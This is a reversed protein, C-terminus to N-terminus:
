ILKQDLAHHIAASRSNVGLKSYITTLHTTVTRRSVVLKEAIQVDSLGQVLLRLVDLERSTLENPSHAKAQPVIPLQELEAIIQQLTLARGESWTSTFDNPNMRDRLIIMEPQYEEQESPIMKTHSEERIAEAAGLWRAAQRDRKEAIAIFALCEICRAMGGQQGYDRWGHIAEVYLKEAERVDGTQRLIDALGSAAMYIRHKDGIQRFLALSEETNQRAVKLNGQSFAGMGAGGLLLALALPSGFRRSNALAQERFRQAITAEGVRFMAGAMIGLGYSLIFADKVKVGIELSEEAATRVRSSQELFSLVTSQVFLARALGLEDNQTRLMPIAHALLDSASPYDGQTMTLFAVTSLARARAGLVEPTLDKETQKLAQEAWRRGETTYGRINWFLTLTAVMHLTMLPQTNLGWQLAARINDLDRDLNALQTLQEATYLKTETTQTWDHFYSLHRERLSLEEGSEVLKEHAYQRIPELFRYHPSEMLLDQSKVNREILIILSKSVLSAVLELVEGPEVGDGACIVEVAELPFAGAFVALRQFLKKEAESLLNYSWDVTARLTQHRSPATRKGQTLLQLANDLRMVIQEVPLVRIRAAALEIALPIGDLRQCIKIIDPANQKTLAFDPTIASARAVFLQVADYQDLNSIISLAQVTPIELSPVIWALEGDINLAERSTVIITLQPCTQLLHSVFRACADIIYECNDLILLSHKSQFYETLLDIPARNPLEPPGLTQLVTQPILDPDNLVALEIWWVGDEFRDVLDTVVRLALRTKGCGGAGTLTLLRASHLLHKLEAIERTRGIFSSLFHPLNNPTSTYASKM